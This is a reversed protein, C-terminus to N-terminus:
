TDGWALRRLAATLPPAPELAIDGVAAVPLAGVLSNLLWAWRFRGLDALALVEERVEVADRVAAVALSPLKWPTAPTVLAVDGLRRGDGGYGLVLAGTACETLRGTGDTLVADWAGGARAGRTAERYPLYSVTKHGAVPSCVAVGHVALRVGDGAGIPPPEYPVAAVLAVTPGGEREPGLHLNVRATGGSLGCAGLVERARAGLAAADAVPAPLPGLGLAALGRAARRLHRGAWRLRGGRWLLTEFVGVGHRLWPSDPSIPLPGDRLADRFFVTM